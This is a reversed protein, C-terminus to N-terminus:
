WPVEASMVRRHDAIRVRAAHHDAVIREAVEVREALPRQRGQELAPIDCVTPELDDDDVVVYVMPGDVVVAWPADTVDEASM